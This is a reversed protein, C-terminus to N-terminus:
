KAKVTVVKSSSGAVTKSGVFAVKVKIAKGYKKGLVVTVKGKDKAKLTVTKVVKKGVYIKVKGTAYVGSNLKGVTITVKPKANKKFAKGTVKAKKTLKAKAVSFSGARVSVASKAGSTEGFSAVVSSYSGVGLRRSVKLTAKGGVVTASGLVAGGNKFTVTGGGVGRVSTTISAVKASGYIQVSKSWVPKSLLVTAKVPPPTPTPTPVAKVAFPAAGSTAGVHTETQAVLATIAYTGVALNQPLAIRAVGAGDPVASGLVRTGARFTVLGASGGTVTAKVSPLAASGFTMSTASLVPPSVHTTARLITLEADSSSAEYDYEGDFPLFNATLEYTGVERQLLEFSVSGGDVTAEGEYDGDIYLEVTGQADAPTVVVNAIVTTGWAATAPSLAVKLTTANPTLAPIPVLAIHREVVNQGDAVTVLEATELDVGGHYGDLDDAGSSAQIKYDGPRLDEIEYSGNRDAWARGVIKWSGTGAEDKSYELADVSVDDLTTGAPATVRGSISGFSAMWQANVEVTQGWAVPVVLYEVRATAGFYTNILTGWQDTFLLKYRGAPLKELTYSGAAGVPASDVLDWSERDGPSGDSVHAEVTVDELDAGQRATVVGKITGFAEMPQAAVQAAQGWDVTVPVSGEQDFAGLHTPALVGSSDGFELKYKGARLRAVTYAGDHDVTATGAYHWVESKGARGNSVSADVVVDEVSVGLPGTVRGSITAFGVMPQVAVQSTQGWVVRM